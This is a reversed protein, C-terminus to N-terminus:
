LLLDFLDMLGDANFSGYRRLLGADVLSVPSFILGSWNIADVNPHFGISRFSAFFYIFGMDFSRASGNLLVM